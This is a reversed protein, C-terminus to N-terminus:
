GVPQRSSTAQFEFVREPSCAWHRSTQDRKKWRTGGAWPSFAPLIWRESGDTQEQILAPLKIRLGAGDRISVCPHHHGIIEIESPDTQCTQHGHHIVFGDGRFHNQFNADRSLLSRDHNGTILTLCDVKKEIRRIFNLGEKTSFSGHVIDGALILRNPSYDAILAALREEIKDMGYLPFMGGAHRFEVEYGYHLDALALWRADENFIALRGDLIVHPHIRATKM